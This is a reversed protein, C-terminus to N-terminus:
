TTRRPSAFAAVTMIAAPYAFALGTLVRLPAWAPRDLLVESGVDLALLALGGLTLRLLTGFPLRPRAILGGLGLGAYIGLCRACAAGVGLMRAPDRGCQLELWADIWHGLVQLGPVRELLGPLFPFLGVLVLLVRVTV